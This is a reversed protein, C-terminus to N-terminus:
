TSIRRAMAARLSTTPSAPQLAVASRKPWNSCSRYHTRSCSTAPHGHVISGLNFITIERAGALVSQYAQDLFNQATCDLSDFWAGGTKAGAVSSLWRFNVYGEMPQVYGYDPTEPNRTETGIWIRDAKATMGAPDYGFDQFRDYWQPIKIILHFDPRVARAPKWMATDILKLLTERRYEPTGENFCYFDDVIMEDFVAASETFARALDEQTKKAGYDLWFQHGSVHVGFTKGPL